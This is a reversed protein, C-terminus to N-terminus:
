IMNENNNPLRLLLAWQPVYQHRVPNIRSCVPGTLIGENIFRNMIRISESIRLDTSEENYAIIDLQNRKVMHSRTSKLFTNALPDASSVTMRHSREWPLVAVVRRFCVSLTRRLCLIWCSMRLISLSWNIFSTQIKKPESMLTGGKQPVSKSKQIMRCTLSANNQCSNGSFPNKCLRTIQEPCCDQIVAPTWVAAIPGPPETSLHFTQDPVM